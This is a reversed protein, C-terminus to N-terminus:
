RRRRRRSLLAFTAALLLGAAPEPVIPTVSGGGAAGSLNTPSIFINGGPRGGSSDDMGGASDNSGSLGAFGTPISPALGKPDAFNRDPQTADAIQVPTDLPAVSSAGAITVAKSRISVGQPMPAPHLAFQLNNISAHTMVPGPQPAPHAATVLQPQSDIVNVPPQPQNRVNHVAVQPADITVAPLHAEIRAFTPIELKSDETVTQTPSKSASSIRPLSPTKFQPRHEQAFRHLWRLASLPNLQQIAGADEVVAMGSGGLAMAAAAVAAFRLPRHVAVSAIAQLMGTMRMPVSASAPSALRQASRVMASVVAAPVIVGLATALAGNDLRV